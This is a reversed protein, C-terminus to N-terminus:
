FPVLFLFFRVPLYHGRGADSDEDVDSDSPEFDPAIDEPDFDQPNPNSLKAIDRLISSKMARKTEGSSGETSSTKAGDFNQIKSTKIWGPGWNQRLSMDAV